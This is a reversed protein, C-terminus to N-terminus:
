SKHFKNKKALYDVEEKHFPYLKSPNNVEYAWFAVEDKQAWISIIYYLGPVKSYGKKFVLSNLDKQNLIFVPTIPEKKKFGVEMMLEAFKKFNM